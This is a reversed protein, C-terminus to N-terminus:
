SAQLMKHQHLMSDMYSTLASVPLCPKRSHTTYSRYQKFSKVSNSRKKTAVASRLLQM